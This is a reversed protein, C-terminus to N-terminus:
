LRIGAHLEEIGTQVGPAERLTEDTTLLAVARDPAGRAVALPEAGGGTIGSPCQTLDSFDLGWIGLGQGAQKDSM